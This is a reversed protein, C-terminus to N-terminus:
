DWINQLNNCTPIFNLIEQSKPRRWTFNHYCINALMFFSSYMSDEFLIHIKVYPTKLYFQNDFIHHKTGRPSLKNQCTFHLNRTFTVDALFFYYIHFLYFSLKCFEDLRLTLWFILFPYFIFVFSDFFYALM